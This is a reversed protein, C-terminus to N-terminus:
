IQIGSALAATRIDAAPVWVSIALRNGAVSGTGPPTTQASTNETVSGVHMGFVRADELFGPCGSSGSYMLADTEYFHLTRGSPHPSLQYTSISARQFREVLGLKPGSPPFTVSALPFGLSGCSKGTPVKSCELQVRTSSRPQAIRLLAVDRVTDAAMLTAVEFSQGIDPSRIALFQGHLPKSPDNEIHCFHAATVLVGPAITFGTANTANLQNAGTVSIGILGYICERIQSCAQVFVEVAEEADPRVLDQSHAPTFRKQDFETSDVFTVAVTM